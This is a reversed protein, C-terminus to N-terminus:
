KGDALREILGSFVFLPWLIVWVIRVMLNDICQVNPTDEGIKLWLDLTGLGALIYTFLLSVILGAIM